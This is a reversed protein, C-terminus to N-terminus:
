AKENEIEYFNAKFKVLRINASEILIRRIPTRSVIRYFIRGLLTLNLFKYVKEWCAGKSSYNIGEGCDLTITEDIISGNRMAAYYTREKIINM